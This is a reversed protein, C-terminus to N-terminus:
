GFVHAQDATRRPSAGIVKTPARKVRDRAEPDCARRRKQIERNRPFGTGESFSDNVKNGYSNARSPFTRM